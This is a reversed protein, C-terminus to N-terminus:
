RIITFFNSISYFSLSILNEVIHMLTYCNRLFFLFVQVLVNLFNIQCDYVASSMFLITSSYEYFWEVEIKAMSISFSSISTTESRAVLEVVSSTPM